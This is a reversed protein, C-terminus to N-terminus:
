PVQLNMVENMLARWKDRDQVLGIQNVHGWSIELLDMETNDVCKHRPGDEKV